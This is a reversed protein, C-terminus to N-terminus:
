AAKAPNYIWRMSRAVRAYDAFSAYVHGDLDDLSAYRKGRLYRRSFRSFFNEALDLWSAHTPTYVPHLRAARPSALFDKMARSRHTSHNDWVLHIQRYGALTDLVTELMSIACETDYGRAPFVEGAVLEGTDPRVVAAITRSGHRVYQFEVRPDRGPAARLRGGQPLGPPLGLAQVGTMEDFCVVVEDDPLDETYLACIADRREIYNPDQKDTFLYYREKHPRVEAQALVRQVTSRSVSVGQKAAEEAIIEQTMSVELRGVDEPRQCALTLIVAHDHEGFERPRGSRPADDLADVGPEALFRTRWKVVTQRTIGLLRATARTGLGEYVQHVIIGAREVLRSEAARSRSLARIEPEVDAVAASIERRTM